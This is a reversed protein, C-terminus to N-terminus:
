FDAQTRMLLVSSLVREYAEHAPSQSLAKAVTRHMCGLVKYNVSQEWKGLWDAM